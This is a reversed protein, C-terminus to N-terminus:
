RAVLRAAVPAGLIVVVVRVLHHTVVYAIDTGAVIALLVMEAQGGPAFALIAFVIRLFVIQFTPVHQLSVYRGLVAVGALLACSVLMWLVGRLTAPVRQVETVTTM